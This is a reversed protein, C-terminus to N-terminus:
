VWSSEQLWLWSYGQLREEVLLLALSPWRLGNRFSNGKLWLFLLVHIFRRTLFFVCGLTLFFTLSDLFWCCLRDVCCWWWCCCLHIWSESVLVAMTDITHLYCRWRLLRIINKSCRVNMPHTPLCPSENVTTSHNTSTSQCLQLRRSRASLQRKACAM